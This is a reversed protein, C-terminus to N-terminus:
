AADMQDIHEDSGPVVSDSMVGNTGKALCPIGRLKGRDLWLLMVEDEDDNFLGDRECRAISGDITGASSARAEYINV